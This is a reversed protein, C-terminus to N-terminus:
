QHGNHHEDNHGNHGGNHRNANNYQTAGIVTVIITGEGVNLYLFFELGVVFVVAGDNNGCTDITM